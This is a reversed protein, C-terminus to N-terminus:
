GTLGIVRMFKGCWWDILSEKRLTIVHINIILIDKSTMLVNDWWVM